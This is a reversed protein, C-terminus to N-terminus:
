SEKKIKLKKALKYIKYCCVPDKEKLSISAENLFTTNKTELFRQLLELPEKLSVLKLMDQIKKVENETDESIEIVVIGDCKENQNEVKGDENIKKQEIPQTKFEELNEMGSQWDLVPAHDTAIDSFVWLYNSKTKKNSSYKTLVEM